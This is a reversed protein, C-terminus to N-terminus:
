KHLTEKFKFYAQIVLIFSSLGERHFNIGFLSDDKPRCCEKRIPLHVFNTMLSQSGVGKRFSNYIRSHHFCQLTRQGISYYGQALISQSSNLFLKIHLLSALLSLFSIFEIIMSVMEWVWILGCRVFRPPPPQVKAGEVERVGEETIVWLMSMCAMQELTLCKKMTM